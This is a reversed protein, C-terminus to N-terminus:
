SRLGMPMLAGMYYFGVDMSVGEKSATYGHGLSDHIYSSGTACSSNIALSRVCISHSWSPLVILPIYGPDAVNALGM